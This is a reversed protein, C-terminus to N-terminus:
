SSLDVGAVTFEMTMAPMFGPIEEHHILVVKRPLDFGVIEAV